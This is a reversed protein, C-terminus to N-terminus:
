RSQICRAIRRNTLALFSFAISVVVAIVGALFLSFATDMGILMLIRGIGLFVFAASVNLVIFFALMAMAQIM